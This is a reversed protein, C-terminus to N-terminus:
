RFKLLIKSFSILWDSQLLCPCFWWGGSSCGCFNWPETRHRWVHLHCRVQRSAGVLGKMESCSVSINVQLTLGERAHVDACFSCAPLKVTPKWPWCSRYVEHTPPGTSVSGCHIHIKLFRFYLTYKNKDLLLLWYKLQKHRESKNM